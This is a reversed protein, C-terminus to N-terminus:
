DAKPWGPRTRRRRLPESLSLRANGAVTRSLRYRYREGSGEIPLRPARDRGFRFVSVAGGGDILRLSYSGAALPQTGGAAREILAVEIEFSSGTLRFPESDWSLDSNHLRLRYEGALDPRGPELVGSLSLRDGSVLLTEILPLTASRVLVLTGAESTATSLGSASLQRPQRSSRIIPVAAGDAGVLQVSEESLSARPPEPLAIELVWAGDVEGVVAGVVAGVMSGRQLEIGAVDRGKDSRRRVGVPEFDRTSVQLRLVHGDVDLGVLEARHPNRRLGLAGAASRVLRLSGSGDLHAPEAAASGGTLVDAVPGTRLEAGNRVSVEFEWFEGFEGPDAPRLGAELPFTLRATFAATDLDLGRSRAWRSVEPRRARTLVADVSHASGVGRARLTLVSPAPDLGAIFAWGELELVPGADTHLWRARSLCSRLPLEADPVRLLPDDTTAGADVPTTACLATLDVFAAGGAGFRTPLQGGLDDFEVRAAAALEPRDARLLHLLVRSFGPVQAPAGFTQTSTDTSTLEATLDRLM